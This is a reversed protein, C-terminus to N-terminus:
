RGGSPLLSLIMAAVVLCAVLALLWRASRSRSRPAEVEEAEEAWGDDDLPDPPESSM